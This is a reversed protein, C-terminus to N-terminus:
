FDGRIVEGGAISGLAPMVTNMDISPSIARVSGDAMAFNIMGGSHFSGWARKCQNSTNTTPPTATCLDFDAILTRSQAITVCSLNYSTYAYAWFTRRAPRTKTTYEGIMLTNSTGDTIDMFRAASMGARLDVGYIPGRWSPVNAWLWAAQSTFPARPNWADDWNVDGGTDSPTGSRFGNVGGFTTGANARYNSPMLLPRGYGHGSGPGTEPLLPNFPASDSPCNYVKVLSQRLTAMNPSMGDPVANPLNPTWLAFLNSQELYPLILITWTEYHDFQNNPPGQRVINGPPLKGYSSEYNHCALAIQKLNNSCSSRAAADRVKQVAPLLLGILIAIIAIVVL